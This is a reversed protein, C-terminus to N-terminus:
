EKNKLRENLKLLCAITAKNTETEAQEYYSHPTTRSDVFKDYKDTKERFYKLLDPQKALVDRMRSISPEKCKGKDTVIMLKYEAPMSLSAVRTALGVVGFGLGIMEKFKMNFFPYPGICGLKWYRTAIGENYNIYVSSGDCFGWVHGVRHLSDTLEFDAGIITTDTKSTQLLITKFSRTVSPTNNVYEEYSKYFGRNLSNTHLVNASDSQGYAFHLLIM